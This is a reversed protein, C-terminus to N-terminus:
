AAEVFRRLDLAIILKDVHHYTGLILESNSHKATNPATEIQDFEIEIM